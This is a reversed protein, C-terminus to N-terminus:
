ICNKSTPELNSGGTPFFRTELGFSASGSDTTILESSSSSSVFGNLDTLTHIFVSFIMILLIM